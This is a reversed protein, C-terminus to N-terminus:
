GCWNKVVSTLVTGPSDVWIDSTSFMQLAMSFNSSETKPSEELKNNENWEAYSHVKINTQIGHM